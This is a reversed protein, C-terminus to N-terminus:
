LVETLSLLDFSMVNLILTFYNVMRDLFLLSSDKNLVRNLVLFKLVWGEGGGLLDQLMKCTCYCSFVEIGVGSGRWCIKYCRARATFVSVEIGVGRGRGVFGTADQM